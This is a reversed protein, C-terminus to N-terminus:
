NAEYYGKEINRDIVNQPVFSITTALYQHKCNYGGRYTFINSSNTGAIRGKELENSLNNGNLDIGKGFDEIEKKHFYQGAYQECFPRSTKRTAGSYYYWEFNLDESISKNYNASFQNLADTAIQSAYREVSGLTQETGKLNTRLNDVLDTFNWNATISDNIIKKVPNIVNTTIGEELLSNQTLQVSNKLLNSYAHKNANFEKITDLFYKDNISKVKPFSNVYANVRSKYSDTLIQKELEIKVYNLIRLNNTNSKITGDPTLELDKILSVVKNYAGSQSSKIGSLFKDIEKDTLNGLKDAFEEPNM